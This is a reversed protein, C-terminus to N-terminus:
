FSPHRPPQNGNAAVLNDWIKKMAMSRQTAADLSRLLAVREPPTPLAAWRQRVADVAAEAQLLRAARVNDPLSWLEDLIEQELQTTQHVLDAPMAGHESPEGMRLSKPSDAWSHAPADDDAPLTAIEQGTVADIIKESYTVSVIRTVSDDRLSRETIAATIERWAREVKHEMSRVAAQVEPSALSSSSSTSSHFLRQIEKMGHDPDYGLAQLFLRQLHALREQPSSWTPAAAFLPTGEQWYERVAPIRIAAACLGCFELVDDENMTSERFTRPRYPRACSSVVVLEQYLVCRCLASRAAHHLQEMAERVPPALDLPRSGCERLLTQLRPVVTDSNNNNNKAGSVQDIATQLCETQRSWIIHRLDAITSASAANAEDPLGDLAVTAQRFFELLLVEDDEKCHSNSDDNETTNRM